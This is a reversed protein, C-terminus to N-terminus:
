QKSAIKYNWGAFLGYFGDYLSTIEGVKVADVSIGGVFMGCSQAHIVGYM